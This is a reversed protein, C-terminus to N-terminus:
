IITLDHVTLNVVRHKLEPKGESIAFWEPSSTTVWLAGGDYSYTEGGNRFRECIEEAKNDAILESNSYYYVNVTVESSEGIRKEYTLYPLEVDEIEEGPVASVSYADIGFSSFISHLLQAKNM